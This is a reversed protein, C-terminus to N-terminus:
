YADFDLFTFYVSRPSFTLNSNRLSLFILNLLSPRLFDPIELYLDTRNMASPVLGLFLRAPNVITKQITDSSRALNLGHTPLEAMVKITPLSDAVFLNTANKEIVRVPNIPNQRRWNLTKESWDCYFETNKHLNFDIGRRGIGIQASLKSVLSFNLKKIFGPTSNANAVGYVAEFGQNAAEEYTKEALKTFLGRGQFDPHTATHLSLLLRIEQGFIRARAPITVYHSALRNGEWADFGVVEGEPNQRYLWDLYDLSFKLNGPFCANILDIYAQYNKPNCVVPILKM